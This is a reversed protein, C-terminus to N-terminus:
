LWSSEESKQKRWETGRCMPFAVRSMNFNFGDMWFMRWVMLWTATAQSDPSPWPTLLLVKTCRTYSHYILISLDNIKKLFRRETSESYMTSMFHVTVLAYIYTCICVSQIPSQTTGIVEWTAPTTNVLSQLSARLTVVHAFIIFGVQALGNSWALTYQLGARFSIEPFSWCDHHSISVVVM